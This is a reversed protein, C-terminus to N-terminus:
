VEVEQDRNGFHFTGRAAVLMIIVAQLVRSLERPVEAGREMGFGGTQVAAFFLGALLVGLPRSGSLLAAMLGVWAYLPAVLATDVYRYHVGLVEIAGVLGAVAGSAFMVRYGIQKLDVGGYETFRPNLGTLRLEYGVVTRNIVFTALLLSGLTIFLGAHLQTGSVLGPLRAPEPVLFSQAMGSAVDRFPHSVLYSAIFRAPYNLLLTSILLPVTYRFQFFATIWAYLGGVIVAVLIASPFLLFPPLPLYIAALAAGVAGLVMQGEGGINFFGARFAIAAALGMGVIPVARNLTSALNSLNQGGVAGRIMAAYAALPDHGTLVMIVAGILMGGLIALMPGQLSRVFRGLHPWFHLSSQRVSPRPQTDEM